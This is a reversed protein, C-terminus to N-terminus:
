HSGGSREREHDAQTRLLVQVCLGLDEFREIGTGFHEGDDYFFECRYRQAAIRSVVFHAGRENWYLTPCPVPETAFPDIELEAEADDIEVDYGYRDHLLQAVLARQDDDFDPIPPRAM